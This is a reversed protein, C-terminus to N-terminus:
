RVFIKMAVGRGLAIRSGKIEVLVPGPSSSVMTRVRVGKVFGLDSLRRVMGRGGEIRIVTADIGPPLIALPIEHSIIKERGKSRRQVFM